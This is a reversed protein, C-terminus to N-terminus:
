AGELFGHVHMIGDVDDKNMVRQGNSLVYLRVPHGLVDVTQEAVVTPLDASDAESNM